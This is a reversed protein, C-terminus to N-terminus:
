NKKEISKQNNKWTGLKKEFFHSNNFTDRIESEMKRYIERIKNSQEETFVNWIKERVKAVDYNMFYKEEETIENYESIKCLIYAFMNMNGIFDDKEILYSYNYQGIRKKIIAPIKEKLENIDDVSLIAVLKLEVKYEEKKFEKENM